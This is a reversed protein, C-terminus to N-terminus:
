IEFYRDPVNLPSNRTINIAFATEIGDQKKDNILIRPGKPMNFLIYDHRINYHKLSRVTLERSVISGQRFLLSRIM